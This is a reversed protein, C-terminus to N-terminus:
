YAWSHLNDRYKPGEELNEVPVVSAGAEVAEIGSVYEQVQAGRERIQERM